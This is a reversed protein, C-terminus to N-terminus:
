SPIQTPKRPARMHACVFWVAGVAILVDGISFVNALPAARPVAFVDGLFWLPTGASILSSNSARLAEWDAASEIIGAAQLAELSAPMRGGNALIVAANLLLGGGLALIGPVRWNLCCVILLLLLSLAYFVNAWWSANQLTAWWSSFIVIQVGLALPILYSARVRVTGLGRFSGGLLKCILLAAATIALLMM